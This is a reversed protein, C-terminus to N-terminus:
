PRGGIVIAGGVAGCAGMGGLFGVGLAELQARRAQKLVERMAEDKVACQHRDAAIVLGAREFSGLVSEAWVKLAAYQEESYAYVNGPAEHGELIIAPKGIVVDLPSYHAPQYPEFAIPKTLAPACGSLFGVLLSVLIFAIRIM